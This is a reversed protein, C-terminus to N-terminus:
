FKEGCSACRKPNKGRRNGCRPCFVPAKQGSALRVGCYVCFNHGATVGAGCNQCMLSAGPEIRGATSQAPVQFGCNTCADMGPHIESGCQPCRIVQDPNHPAGCRPCEGSASDLLGGCRVCAGNPSAPTKGHGCEICFEAGIPMVASCRPCRTEDNQAM